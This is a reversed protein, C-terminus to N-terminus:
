KFLGMAIMQGIQGKSKSQKECKAEFAHLEKTDICKDADADALILFGHYVCYFEYLTYLEDNNADCHELITIGNPCSKMIQTDVTIPRPQRFFFKLLADYKLLNRMADEIQAGDRGDRCKYKKNQQWPAGDSLVLLVNFLLIPLFM